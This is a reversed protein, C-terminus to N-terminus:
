PHTTQTPGFLEVAGAVISDIHQNAAPIDAPTSLTTASSFGADKISTGLVKPKGDIRLYRDHFDARLLRYKSPGREAAFLRSVAIFDATFNRNSWGVVSVSVSQPVNKLYRYFLSEDLYRDIYIVEQTAADFLPRLLCYTTFPTNAELVGAVERLPISVMATFFEARERELVRKLQDQDTAILQRVHSNVRAVPGDVDHHEVSDPIGMVEKCFQQLEGRLKDCDRSCQARIIRIADPDVTGPEEIVRLIPSLYLGFKYLFEAHRERPIM